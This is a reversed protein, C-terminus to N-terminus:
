EPESALMATTSLLFFDLKVGFLADLSLSQNTLNLAM